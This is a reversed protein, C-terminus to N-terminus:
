RVGGCFAPSSPPAFSLPASLVYEENATGYCFMPFLVLLMYCDHACVQVDAGTGDALQPGVQVQQAVLHARADRWGMSSPAMTCLLRLLQQQHQQQQQKLQQSVGPQQVAAYDCESTKVGEGLETRFVRCILLLMLM